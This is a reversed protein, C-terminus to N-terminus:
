HINVSPTPVPKSKKIESNPVATSKHHQNELNYEDILCNLFWLNNQNNNIAEFLDGLEIRKKDKTTKKVEELLYEGFYEVANAMAPINDNTTAIDSDQKMIARIRHLPFFYSKSSKNKKGWNPDIALM